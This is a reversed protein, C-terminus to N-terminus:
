ELKGEDNNENEELPEKPLLPMNQYCKEASSCRELESILMTRLYIYILYSLM